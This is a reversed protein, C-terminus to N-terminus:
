ERRLRPAPEAQVGDVWFYSRGLGALGVGLDWVLAIHFWDGPGKTMNQTVDMQLEGVNSDVRANLVGEAVWQIRWRGGGHSGELVTSGVVWSSPKHWFLIGATREFFVPITYNESNGAFDGM